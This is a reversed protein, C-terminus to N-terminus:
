TIEGSEAEIAIFSSRIRSPLPRLVELVGEVEIQALALFAASGGDLRWAAVHHPADRGFHM